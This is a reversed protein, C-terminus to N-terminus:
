DSLTASELLPLAQPLEQPQSPERVVAEVIKPQALGQAPHGTMSAIRRASVLVRNEYSGVLGNWRTVLTNIATSVDAMHECFKMMRDFLQKADDVIRAANEENKQMMWGRAFARLYTLLTLPSAIHIRKDAADTIIGPDVNLTASLVSEIGVFMVCFGASGAAEDYRRAALANVHSRLAQASEMLLTRQAEPDQTECAAQYATLPVKADVPLSLGGPLNILMDPRGRKDSGYQATLQTDFDCHQTMGAIEVIRKLTVEGWQGRITPDALASSLKRTETNTRDVIGQLTELTTRLQAQEETRNRDLTSIATGIAEIQQKLVNMAGNNAERERGFRQEAVTLLQESVRQLTATAIKQMEDSQATSAQRELDKCRTEAAIRQQDVVAFRRQLDTNTEVASELREQRDRVIPRLALVAIAGGAILGVVLVILPFVTSTM